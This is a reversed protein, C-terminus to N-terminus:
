DVELSPARRRTKITWGTFLLDRQCARRISLRECSLARRAITRGTKKAQYRSAALYAHSGSTVCDQEFSYTVFFLSRGNRKSALFDSM